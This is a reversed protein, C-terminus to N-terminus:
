GDVAEAIELLGLIENGSDAALMTLVGQDRMDKALVVDTQIIVALARFTDETLIFKEKLKGARFDDIFEDANIYTRERKDERNWEM